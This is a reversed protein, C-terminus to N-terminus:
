HKKSIMTVRWGRLTHVPPVTPLAAPFWSQKPESLLLMQLVQLLDTDLYLFLHRQCLMHTRLPCRHDALIVLEVRSLCTAASTRKQTDPSPHSRKPDSQAFLNSNTTNKAKKNSVMNLAFSCGHESQSPTHQRHLEHLRRVARWQHVHM